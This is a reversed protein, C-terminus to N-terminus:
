TNSRHEDRNQKHNETRRATTSSNSTGIGGMGYGIGVSRTGSQEGGGVGQCMNRAIPEVGEGKIAGVAKMMEKMKTAMARRLVMHTGACRGVIIHRMNELPPEREERNAAESHSQERRRKLCVACGWEGCRTATGGKAGEAQKRREWTKEHKMGATDGNRLGMIMGVCANHAAVDEWTPKTVAGGKDAQTKTMKLARQGLGKWIAHEQGATIRGRSVSGEMRDRAYETARKRAGSYMAQDSMVWGEETKWENIRPRTQVWGAIRHTVDEMWESQLHAKACADAYENPSCGVHAPVYIIM